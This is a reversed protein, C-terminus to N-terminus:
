YNLSCGGGLRVPFILNFYYYYFFFVGVQTPYEEYKSVYQLYSSVQPM